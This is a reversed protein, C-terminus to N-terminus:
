GGKQKVVVIRLPNPGIQGAALKLLEISQVQEPAVGLDQLLNPMPTPPAPNVIVGDIVYLPGNSPFSYGLALRLRIARMLSDSSASDVGARNVGTVGHKTTVVIVGDVAGPGYLAAAAAGKLVEVKEIQDRPIGRLMDLPDATRAEPLRGATSKVYHENADVLFTVVDITTDGRLISPHYQAVWARLVELPVDASDGPLRTPVSAGISDIVITSDRDVTVEHGNANMIQTRPRGPVEATGLLTDGHEPQPRATRPTEPVFRPSLRSAPKALLAPRPTQAALSLALVAVVLFPLSALLPRRPQNTTMALIRRELSRRREVLAPAYPLSMTQRAGVALLLLGYDNTRHTTRLVRADCDIEIALRLRKALYWLAANWPFLVLSLAVLLLLQPDGAAVHEAEHRLMLARDNGPLALAWTPVVIAPRLAGVVAPGVDDAILVRLGDIEAVRWTARRRHVTRIGAVLLALFATSTAAWAARAYGDWAAADARASAMWQRVPNRTSAPRSAAHRTVPARGATAPQPDIREVRAVASPASPLPAPSPRFALVFPIAVAGALAAIWVVRRPGSWIATVRELALAGGIVLAGLLTSYLMWAILM